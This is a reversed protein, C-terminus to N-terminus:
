GVPLLHVEYRDGKGHLVILQDVDARRAGDRVLVDGFYPPHVYVPESPDVGAATRVREELRELERREDPSLPDHSALLRAGDPPQWGLAISTQDVVFVVADADDPTATRWTGYTLPSLPDPDVRVEFGRRELALFLGSIPAGLQRVEQGRVLYTRDRRLEAAVEPVLSDLSRSVQSLPVQAPLQTVTGAALALVVGISAVLDGRRGWGPLAGLLSWALALVALAAIGRWFLVIYPAYLGTVRASTAVGIIALVLVMAALLVHGGDCRRSRWALAVVAGLVVMAPAVAGTTGFNLSNADNGTLWPGLLRLHAGLSGLAVAVGATESSPARMYGVIAGLNGPDGTLQQWFPLAWCVLGAGSAAGVAPAAAGDRDCGARWVTVGVSIGIPAVVLLLYGVHAQLAFSGLVVAPVLLWPRVVAAWALVVSATWPVLAITPNWPDVLGDPGLGVSLGGLSGAVALGLRRGGAALAGICAAAVAGANVLATGVLVGTAGGAREFPALVYFLMPGPHAWGWRSFVGVLPSHPGGVDDVRLMELAHDFSPVWTRGGVSAAALLAPLCAGLVMLGSALSPARM